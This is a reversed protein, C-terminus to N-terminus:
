GPAAAAAPSPGAASPMPQWDGALNKLLVVSAALRRNRVSLLNNHASLVTTQAALVNLYGVLGARYQNEVVALARQATAVAETHVAQERELSAGLVLNDEVEQLATLVTQRYSASAQEVGALAQELAASRAGGDFLTAALAPGLSWVLAPASLVDAWQAARYGASASFNLQPFFAARAVGVQANAAQVRQQAAAIDPRRQLLQAPLQAPLAPPPPLEATVALTFSAPAQGLLVALAHELQARSSHAALQQAQVALWQTHAQAVDASSAVGARYRNQTLEWSRQYAALTDALLRQQAEAARVAFYTQAVSAQVSLRMAAVDNASAAVNAQAARVGAAVRGWVDLEWSATLGVTASTNVPAATTSASASNSTSSRSRTSAANAGLTPWWAARSGDLAAHAARLRGLALALDHNAAQAQQQLADLVPDNFLRWWDGPVADQPQAAQWVSSGPVGEKFAAPVHLAPPESPPVASCAALGVLNVLLFARWGKSTLRQCSDFFSNESPM